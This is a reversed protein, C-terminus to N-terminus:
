GRYRELGYDETYEWDSFTYCDISVDLGSEKEEALKAELISQREAVLEQALPALPKNDVLAEVMAEFEWDPRKSIADLYAESKAIDPCKLVPVPVRVRFGPQEAIEMIQKIAPDTVYKANDVYALTGFGAKYYEQVFFGDPQTMWELFTWAAEHNETQSSVWYKNGDHQRALAGTAGGDPNPHGAVTFKDATYGQSTWVSPMWTGDLYIAAQDAAFQQRSFDKDNTGPALYGAQNLEQVYSFTELLAPDDLSFKGNQYDFFLDTKAGAALAYWIRQLDRGKSPSAICEAETSATITACAQKLETWTKPPNAPDLGAQAFVANNLYMYGPGWYLNESFPFSYTEGESINIGDVFSGDPWRDAVEQPLEGDPHLPSVWGQSLMQAMNMPGGDSWYFIDPAQRSQFALPLTKKYEDQTISRWEIKINPHEKTFQDGVVKHFEVQETSFDWINLTVQDGSGSDTGCAVLPAVLALAALAVAGRRKKM